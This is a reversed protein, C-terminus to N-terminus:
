LHGWPQWHLQGAYQTLLQTRLKAPMKGLKQPLDVPIVVAREFEISRTDEEPKLSRTAVELFKAAARQAQQARQTVDVPVPGGGASVELAVMYSNYADRAEEYAAMTRRYGPDDPDEIRKEDRVFQEALNKSRALSALAGLTSMVEAKTCGSSTLLTAFCAAASVWTFLMKSRVRVRMTLQRLHFPRNKVNAAEV